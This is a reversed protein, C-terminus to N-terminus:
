VRTKMGIGKAQLTLTELEGPSGKIGGGRMAELTKSWRESAKKKVKLNMKQGPVKKYHIGMNM